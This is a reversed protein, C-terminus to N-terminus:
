NDVVNSDSRETIEYSVEIENESEAYIPVLAQTEPNYEPEEGFRVEKYGVISKLIEDTPNAIVIKRRENETPEVLMGNIIKGLM